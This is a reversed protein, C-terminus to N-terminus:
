ELEANKPAANIRSKIRGAAPMKVINRSRNASSRTQQASDPSGGTPLPVGASAAPVPTAGGGPGAAIQAAQEPPPPVAVIPVGASQLQQVLQMPDVSERIMLGLMADTQKLQEPQLYGAAYLTAVAGADTAFERRETDGLSVRPTLDLADDGFNFRVMPRLLDAVLMDVVVGKLWWILQDLVSMQTMSAARSQHVGESTALTQLLIGTEMQNDFMEIAKFFPTGAGQAGIEQVKSGGKVAMVEANRANLLADRMAEVPNAEMFTGTLPDKVPTGDANRVIDKISTDNEPTYGVLLPIACLLLYRLYEPWIQTKLHWASFAPTLVSQGRPDGDKGRITLVLFKERPLIPRGNINTRGDKGITRKLPESPTNITGKGNVDMAQSTLGVINAKNDVVFQVVGLKKVKIKDPILFDGEFGNVTSTKYTIEAIKHGFILADMMQELVYRLPIQLEKLSRECFDALIRAEEYNEDTEAVAPLLEVGDGLVGIKLIHIDKSIKPDEMMQALTRVSHERGLSNNTLSSDGDFGSLTHTGSGGSSLVGGTVYEKRPDIKSAKNGLSEKAVVPM